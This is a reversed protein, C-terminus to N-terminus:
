TKRDYFVFLEEEYYRGDVVQGPGFRRIGKKELLDQFKRNIEELSVNEKFWQLPADVNLPRAPIVHRTTKPAFARHKKGAEVVMDKTLQPTWLLCAGESFERCFDKEHAAQCPIYELRVGKRCLENQLKELVKYASVADYVADKQFRILAYADNQQFGFSFHDNELECRLAEADPLWTLEGQMRGVLQKLFDMSNRHSLLRFWCKLQM